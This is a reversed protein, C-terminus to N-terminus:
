ENGESKREVSIYEGSGSSGLFLLIGGLHKKWIPIRFFFHPSDEFQLVISKKYELAPYFTHRFRLM